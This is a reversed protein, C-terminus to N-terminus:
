CWINVEVKGITFSKWYMELKLYWWHSADFFLGVQFCLAAQWSIWAWPIMWRNRKEFDAKKGEDEDDDEDDGGTIHLEWSANECWIFIKLVKIRGVYILVNLNRRNAFYVQKMLEIYYDVWMKVCLIFIHRMLLYKDMYRATFSFIWNQIWIAVLSWSKIECCPFRNWDCLVFLLPEQRNFHPSPKCFFFFSFCM